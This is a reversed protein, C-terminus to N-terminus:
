DNTSSWQKYKFVANGASNRYIFFMHPGTHGHIDTLFPQLWNKFDFMVTNTYVFNSKTSSSHNLVSNEFRKIMEPITFVNNNKLHNDSYTSFIQDIDEHTHGKM